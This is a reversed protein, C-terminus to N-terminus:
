FTLRFGLQVSRPAQRSNLNNFNKNPTVTNASEVHSVPDISKVHKLDEPTGGVIPVAVDFTYNEDVNLEEQENLLNFLRIFGEALMNKNIKYGYGLQVDFQTTVPSRAFAGRPLLYAEGNGYTPHAGLANHAIGSIARFSAGATLLGAKKLDFQYFGDIKLNHPRDLGLNGYRNAMLDPLDYLSTLNPDLQGTETSFLGPYNGKSVAYTYSAQLLSRRTPRQRATIAIADYNRTPKDFRRVYDLLKARGDYVDALAMNEASNTARLREAEARLDAAEGGYDEGPNTIMYTNGGDTSVDEIVTPLSRHIYNLGITLDAAFEYEAGLILEQTYQGKLGPSVYEVGEGLLAAAARDQCQLITKSLDPDMTTGFDVNCNPDYGEQDPTLRRVNVNTFNTIEGGFARVNLDMPVNEYFRGWHGFLKSKGESTPDFIFGLRPAILNKLEYAEDPITEGEPTLVGGRLSEAVYGTQQEWRLGANITLNPRIQWSDQIFAAFSTNDTNAQLFPTPTCIARDGACLLEGPQLMVTNPDEEPGLNRGFKMYERLQWSGPTAGTNARRTM